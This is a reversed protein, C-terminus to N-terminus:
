TSVPLKHQDGLCIPSASLRAPIISGVDFHGWIVPALLAIAEATARLQTAPINAQMFEAVSQLNHDIEIKMAEKAERSEVEEGEAKGKSAEGELRSAAAPSESSRWRCARLAGM